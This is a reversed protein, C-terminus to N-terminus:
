FCNSLFKRWDTPSVKSIVESLGEIPINKGGRKVGSAPSSIKGDVQLALADSKFNVGGSEVQRDIRGGGIALAQTIVKKIKGFGEAIDHYTERTLAEDVVIVDRDFHATTDGTLLAHIRLVAGRFSEPSSSIDLDALAAKIREIPVGEVNQGFRASVSNNLQPYVSVAFHSTLVVMFSKFDGSIGAGMLHGMLEKDRSEGCQEAYAGSFRRNIEKEILYDQILNHLEHLYADVENNQPVSRFALGHVALYIHLLEHALIYGQSGHDVGRLGIVWSGDAQPVMVGGIGSGLFSHQATVTIREGVLEYENQLLALQLDRDLAKAYRAPFSEAQVLDDSRLVLDTPKEQAHIFDDVGKFLGLGNESRDSEKLRADLDKLFTLLTQFADWHLGRYFSGGMKGYIKLNWQAVDVLENLFYTL